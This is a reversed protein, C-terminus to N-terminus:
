KIEAIVHGMKSVDYGGLQNVKTRFFPEHLIDLLSSITKDKYFDSPIILDYQETGFPIFDLDLARAASLIGMGTDVNGSKVKAAISLHTYEEREYGNINEPNIDSEKLMKNLLLRTGSGRQRNIFTIDSRILDSLAEISKPNGAPVILGQVRQVLNIVTVSRNKLYKRVFPLNYEGTKEDLLHCGAIHSEGRGLTILGGLSGVNSSTMFSNPNIRHYESSLLDLSVDHSGTVLVTNQIHKLPRLLDVTAESGIDFGESFRPSKVIGDAKVMSMTVGAGRQIPAVIMQEGIKGVRVRLYEDEGIPSLVKRTFIAQISEPTTSAVGLKTEILPRLFLDATLAASVPYGPIGLVPKNDIIGLVVPHGPRIAVGHVIVEGLSTVIDSTHDEMGASSGANIVVIDSKKVAAQVVAKITEFNDQVASHIDSAGGYDEVLAKLMLSNSDLINGLEVVSGIPVLETGTPIITVKPLKRISIESLGAQICAAIDQPRIRHGVPLVLETAVIDEGLPRVDNYPPVSSRIEVVSEDIQNVVEIKIVADFGDPMPDGTDIWRAQSGIKLKVPSTETAGVTDTSLVAIGDMAASDYNPSSIKAWVSDGTVRKNSSDINLQESATTSLACKKHLAANYLDISEQLPVDNLYYDRKSKVKM